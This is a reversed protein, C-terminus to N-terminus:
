RCNAGGAARCLYHQKVYTGYGDTPTGYGDKILVNAPATPWVDWAWGLYGIGMADVKPLLTSAFPASPTGPTNRDGFETILVPWGAAVIAQASRYSQAGYNPQSYDSSGYEAGYKAYAHWAVGLQHQPDRLAYEVWRSLDSTYNVGPALVVNNAGTSRITELLQQMGAAKWEYAMSNPTGGTAFKTFHGGDRLVRWGDQGSAMGDGFPENFLEFVVGLNGQFTTAVQHWFAISHDEDAQANQALPCWPGPASWHLDLIVLLGHAGAASVAAKVTAQYNNGPDTKRQNGAPGGFAGVADVCTGGNWSAENLPIRVINIGWSKFLAWDPEPTGTQGSWPNSPSWGHMPAFELGSLNVGQLSLRKGEGDVFHDGNVRIVPAGSAAGAMTMAIVALIVRQWGAAFPRQLARGMRAWLVEFRQQM